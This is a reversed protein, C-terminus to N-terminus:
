NLGPLLLLRLLLHPILVVELWLCAFNSFGCPFESSQPVESFPLPELLNWCSVFFGCPYKQNLCTWIGVIGLAGLMGFISFM